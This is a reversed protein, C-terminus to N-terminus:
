LYTGRAKSRSTPNVYGGVRGEARSRQRPRFHCGGFGRGSGIAGGILLGVATCRVLVASQPLLSGRCGVSQAGVQPLLDARVVGVEDHQGAGEDRAEDVAGDVIGVAGEDAHLRAVGDEDAEPGRCRM